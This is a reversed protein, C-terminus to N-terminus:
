KKSRMLRDLLWQIAGETRNLGRLFHEAEPIAYKEAWESASIPKGERQFTYQWNQYQIGMPMSKGDLIKIYDLLIDNWNKRVTKIEKFSDEVTFNEAIMYSLPSDEIDRIRSKVAITRTIYLLDKIRIM